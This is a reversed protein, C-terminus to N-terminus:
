SQYGCLVAAAGYIWQLQPIPTGEDVMRYAERWLGAETTGKTEGHTASPDRMTRGYQDETMKDLIEAGRELAKILKPDRAKAARMGCAAFHQNHKESAQKSRRYAHEVFAPTIFDALEVHAPM